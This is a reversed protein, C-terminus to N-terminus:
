IQAAQERLNLIERHRPTPAQMGRGRVQSESGFQRGPLLTLKLRFRGHWRPPVQRVHFGIIPGQRGFELCTSCLAASSILVKVVPKVTRVIWASKVERSAGSLTWCSTCPQPQPTSMRTFSASNPLFYTKASSKWFSVERAQISRMTRATTSSLRRKRGSMTFRRSPPIKFTPDVM